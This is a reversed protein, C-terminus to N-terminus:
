RLKKILKRLKKNEKKLAKLEDALDEVSVEEACGFHEERSKLVVQDRDYNQNFITVAELNEKGTNCMAHFKGAPVIAVSGACLDYTEDEIQIQGTGSQVVVMEEVITHSHGPNAEGPAMCVPVWGLEKLKAGRVARAAEFDTTNL